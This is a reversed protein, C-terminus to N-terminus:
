NWSRQATLCPFYIRIVGKRAGPPLYLQNYAWVVPTKEKQDSFIYLQTNSRYVCDIGMKEKVINGLKSDLVALTEGVAHKKLVKKLGAPDEM